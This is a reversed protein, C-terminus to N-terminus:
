PSPSSSRATRGRLSLRRSTTAHNRCCSGRVELTFNLLIDRGPLKPHALRDMMAAVAAAGIDELPQHITTLGHLAAFPLDDFGAIHLRKSQGPRLNELTDTLALALNDNACIMADPEFDDLLEQVFEVRSPEGTSVRPVKGAHRVAEEFGVIRADVTSASDKRRIFAIRQAKHQRLLHETVVFGARRNDIGVVDFRSRHPFSRMCRDLLVVPLDGLGSVTRENMALSDGEFEVPVFFVGSVGGGVLQKVEAGDKLATPAFARPWLLRHGREELSKALAVGLPTFFDLNVSEPMLLEFELSRRRAPQKVYTGSGRRRVLLDDAALQNLAAAIAPRTVGYREALESESPLREIFEGAQIAARIAESLDRPRRARPASEEARKM